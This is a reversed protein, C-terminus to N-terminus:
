KIPAGDAGVVYWKSNLGQGNTDGAVKDGAFYYLPHGYFTVQKAGDGRTITGFDSADLGTGLAPLDGTLPPWNAACGGSCASTGGSDALFLYLTMGGAGVLVKGLGTSALDIGGTAAAPSAGGGSKYGGADYGSMATSDVPTATSGAVAGSTPAPTPATTPATGGGSSCAGLLAALLLPAAARALQM